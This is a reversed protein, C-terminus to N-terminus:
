HSPAPSKLPYPCGKPANNKPTMEDFPAFTEHKLSAPAAARSSIRRAFGMSQGQKTEDIFGMLASNQYM